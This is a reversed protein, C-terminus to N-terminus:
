CDGGLGHCRRRQRLERRRRRRVEGSRGGRGRLVEVSGRGGDSRVGGHRARQRINMVPAAVQRHGAEMNDGIVCRTSSECMDVVPAAVRRHGVEVNGDIVCRTSSESTSSSSWM